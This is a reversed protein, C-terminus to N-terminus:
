GNDTMLNIVDNNILQILKELLFGKSPREVLKVFCRDVIINLLQLPNKKISMESVFNNLYINNRLISIKDQKYLETIKFQFQPNITIIYIGNLIVPHNSFEFELPLSYKRPRSHYTLFPNTKHGLKLLSDTWLKMQPFGPHVIPCNNQDLTIVCIDDALIQFGKKIFGAALTSKGIGSEGCFLIAQKGYIIASGHVPLLGRQHMLAGFASGILYLRIEAQTVGEYPEIVILNGDQVLYRAVQDINLLYQHKNIQIYGNTQIPDDLINTIPAVKIVVDSSETPNALLLEPIAFISKITFSYAKYYYFKIEEESM